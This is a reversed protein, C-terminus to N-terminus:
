KAAAFEDPLQGQYRADAYSRYWASASAIMERHDTSVATRNKKMPQNAQLHQDIRDAFQYLTENASHVFSWKKLRRDVKSLRRRSQHDAADFGWRSPKYFKTWWVYLLIGFLPLQILRFIVMLTDTVRTSMIWGLGRSYWKTGMGNAIDSVNSGGVQEDDVNQLPSLTQYARGPTSEVAFWQGTQEDFAEAWSHADRNRAIWRGADEESLEDVVYGTVYRTPVDVARLMLVTASAFYECHADHETQLFHSIPDVGQPPVTKNLAYKFRRQFFRSIAESKEIASDDPKCLRRAISEVIGRSYEPIDNLVMRRADGLSETRVDAAVGVVYPQGTRVGRIVTQDVSVLIENSDSEIWHSTLPMFVGPGKQADTRVEMMITPVETPTAVDGSDIDRSSRGLPFHNYSPSGESRLFSQLEGAPQVLSNSLEQQAKRGLRADRSSFWRSSSYVDFVTGRLYGPARVSYVSLALGNPDASLHERISGLRSGTVYRMGGLYRDTVVSEISVRLQKQLDSQIGPLVHDTVSAVASTLMLLISLALMAFTGRIWKIRDTSISAPRSMVGSSRQKSSIVLHSAVCFGGCVALGVTTQATSSRSVGGAAVCLLAVIMGLPLLSTHGRRPYWMWILLSLFFCVHASVDVGLYVLNANEGVRGQIRWLSTFAIVLGVGLSRSIWRTPHSPKPSSSNRSLLENSGPRQNWLVALGTVAGVPVWDSFTSALFLMEVVLIAGLLLKPREVM